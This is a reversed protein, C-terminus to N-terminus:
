VNRYALTLALVVVVTIFIPRIFKPGRNIVMKAGIRSGIIQGIAMVLGMSYLVKGAMAFLFFAVINSTFNFIKTHATADVLNLGAFAMLSFAWFNGTGPGFFGDYFGLVVGGITFLWFPRRSKIKPMSLNQMGTPWLRPALLMYGVILLMLLPIIKSLFQSSITRAVTTGALAGLATCVIGPIIEKLNIKKARVFQYSSTLSGFSSQFKNTGLAMAPPIGAHLLVPLTILGGGGAIADIWGAFLGAFFLLISILFFNQEM